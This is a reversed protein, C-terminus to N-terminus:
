KFYAYTPKHDKAIDTLVTVFALKTLNFKKELLICDSTQSCFLECNKGYCTVYRSRLEKLRGRWYGIKIVTMTDATVCYIYGSTDKSM